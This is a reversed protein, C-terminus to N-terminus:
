YVYLLADRYIACSYAYFLSVIVIAISSLVIGAIALKNPKKRVGICSFLLGLLCLAWGLVPFWGLFLSTLAIIFGSIAFGNSNSRTVPIPIVTSFNHESQYLQVLRFPQQPPPQQQHPQQQPPPQQEQPNQKAQSTQEEQPKAQTQPFPEKQPPPQQQPPTIQKEQSVQQQPMDAPLLTQEPNESQARESSPSNVNRSDTNFTLEFSSGCTNCFPVTDECPTECKACIRM